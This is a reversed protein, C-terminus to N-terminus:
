FDEYDRSRDHSTLDGPVFFEERETSIEILSKKHHRRFLGTGKLIFLLIFIAAMIAWTLLPRYM